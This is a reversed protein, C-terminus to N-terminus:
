GLPDARGLPGTDLVVCTAGTRSARTWFADIPVGPARQLFSRLIDDRTESPADSFGYVSPGWSSQGVGVLGRGRLDSVLAEVQADAFNGGQIPAFLTGVARQIESLAAGFASLDHEALAPLVGLLVLRSLRDTTAAPVSELSQFAEIEHSGHLGPSSRPIVVLISWDEPFPRLVVLPPMPSNAGRGGDILLGGHRFGHIGVGSRRGRGTLQVLMQLSPEDVGALLLLARALALSLQTGVGLGVHAPPCRRVLIRLPGVPRGLQALREAVTRAVDLSREALPGAAHWLHAPEVVVELGPDDIMLGLGGFQRDAGPGWGLLGFHLRSPTTVQVRSM